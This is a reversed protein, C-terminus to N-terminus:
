FKGGGGGHSRGSSGTHVGGGGSDEKPRPMRTTHTNIFMDRRHTLHFSGRVAYDNAMSQPRATKLQASMFLVSILAIVFATVWVIALSSIGGKQLDINTPRPSQIYSDAMRIFHSFAEYYEGNSLYSVVKNKIESIRADNIIQMGRGSTSIHWDRNEMSVLFLIGDRNDGFGFGNYDFYDDAFIEPSKGGLSNVTVIVVDFDYADIINNIMSKLGSAQGADLLGAGDYVRANIDYSTYAAQCVMSLVALFTLIFRRM